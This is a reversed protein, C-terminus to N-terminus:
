REAERQPNGAVCENLTLFPYAHPLITLNDSCCDYCNDRYDRPCHPQSCQEYKEPREGMLGSPDVANPVNGEVWSYRNLSGARAMDGELPDLSPFVGLAPNYYRARLYVLGNTDTPEGTYGFPTQRTGTSAFM